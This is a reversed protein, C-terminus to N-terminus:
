HGTRRRASRRRSSAWPARAAGSGAGAEHHALAGVDLGGRSAAAPRPPARERRPPAPTRPPLRGGVLRRLVGGRQLGRRRAPASATASAGGGSGRRGRRPRARGRVGGAAAGRRRADRGRGAGGRGATWAGAAAGRAGWPLRAARRGAVPRREIRARQARGGGLRHDDGPRDHRDAADRRGGDARPRKGAAGPGRARPSTRSSLTTGPVRPRSRSNMSTARLSLFRRPVPRGASSAALASVGLSSSSAAM